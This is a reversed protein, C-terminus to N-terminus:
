MEESLNRFNPRFNIVGGCFHCSINEPEAHKRLINEKCHKFYKTGRGYLSLYIMTVMKGNPDTERKGVM